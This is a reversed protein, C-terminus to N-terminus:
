ANSEVYKKFSNLVAQTFEKQLDIPITNVPQFTESIKVPNGETFTIATKRNDDLTYSIFENTKVMDYEGGYNFRDSGDKKTMVFLFKGGTRVDNEVKLNQWEDSANNWQMIDEPTTWRKWVKEITANIEVDVTIDATQETTM